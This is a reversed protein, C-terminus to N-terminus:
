TENKMTAESCIRCDLFEVAMHLLYGYLGLQNAPWVVELTDLDLASVM